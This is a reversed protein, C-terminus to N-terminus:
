HERKRVEYYEEHKSKEVVCKIQFMGNKKQERSFDQTPLNIEGLFFDGLERGKKKSLHFRKRVGYTYGASTAHVAADYSILHIYRRERHEYSVSYRIALGASSVASCNEKNQPYDGSARQMAAMQLRRIMRSLELRHKNSHVGHVRGSAIASLGILLPLMLLLVFVFHSDM